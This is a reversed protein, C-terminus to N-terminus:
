AFYESIFDGPIKREEPAAEKFIPLERNLNGDLKLVTAVNGSTYGYNPASWVTLVKESFHYQFGDMVLQHARTILEIKNNHCFETAPANGFLWGAGRNNLAWSRISDEPDSWTLDCLPGETLIESQRELLAIKEISPVNPSLGGHTSFIRNNITACMPLLDFAEQCINWLGPHGYNQCIQNYFGYAKSVERCEHNGRLLWINGPYRLKLTALYIFTELSYYGRDVYDGQFLFQHTAPDGAVQFLKFLDYLQGHIDGCIIIPASLRILTDEEYLVEMLKKVIMLVVKETLAHGERLQTLVADLDLEGSM